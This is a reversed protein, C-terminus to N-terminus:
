FFGWFVLLQFSERGWGVGNMFQASFKHYTINRNALKATQKALSGGACMSMLQIHSVPLLRQNLAIVLFILTILM